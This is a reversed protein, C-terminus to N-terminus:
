GSRGLRASLQTEGPMSRQALRVVGLLDVRDWPKLLFRHAAGENLARAALHVDFEGTLLIRVTDPYMMRVQHLLELGSLGPMSFDSIIVDFSAAALARLASEGDPAETVAFESNRLGRRLSARVDPDDDVLLISCDHHM